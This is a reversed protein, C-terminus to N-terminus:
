EIEVLLSSGINFKPLLFPKYEKAGTLRYYAYPKAADMCMETDCDVETSASEPCACSRDVTVVLHESPDGTLDGPDPPALNPNEAATDEALERVIDEGLDRMAGNSAARLSDAIQMKENIALGIDVTALCALVLAPALIAFEIAPAGGEDSAISRKGRALCSQLKSAPM